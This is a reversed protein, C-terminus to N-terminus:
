RRRRRILALGGLGAMLLLCSAPVPVPNLQIQWGNHSDYRLGQLNLTISNATFSLRSSTLGTIGFSTLRLSTIPVGFDLGSFVWGNFTAATYGISNGILHDFSITDSAFDVSYTGTL